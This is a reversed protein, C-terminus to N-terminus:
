MAANDVYSNAQLEFLYKYLGDNKILERHSGVEKLIGDELVLIDDVMKISSLRHTVLICLKNSKLYRFNEFLEYETLADISATPEDLVLISAEKIAARTLAIKQWQGLSLETSESWEKQLKTKYGFPLEDVFESVGTFKAVKDLTDELQKNGLTINTEIDFPYKIFDQFIASVSSHLSKTNIDNINVDDVLISGSDVNYFKLLLKILTTKGSGNLGVLAYTKNALFTYSFNKIIYNTTNPYKFSVNRFEIKNFDPCFPIKFREDEIEIDFLNFLSHMYLSDEYTKSIMSLTIDLSMKLTDITQIFMLLSGITIEKIISLYIMYGKLSYTLLRDISKIFLTQGLFGKRIKKDENVNFNYIDLIVKKIYMFGNFIKLEKINDYKICLMKLHRSFRLKEFRRNFIEYWKSLIKNNIYFLPIGSVICVIISIKSFNYLIAISGAFSTATKIIQIITQLISMSRQLSETSAKQLINYTASSDFHKLELQEVKNLIKETMSKDVYKSYINQIYSSIGNVTADLMNVIFHICLYILVNIVEKNEGLLLHSISDIFYKWVWINIPTFLGSCFSLIVIMLFKSKSSNYLLGLTRIISKNFEKIKFKIDM